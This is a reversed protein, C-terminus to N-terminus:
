GDLTWEEINWTFSETTANDEINGINDAWALFAPLQYLPVNPLTQWMQQDAQNLFDSQADIDLETNARAILDDVVEDSYAGPNSASGTEFIQKTGSAPFPTGVWAFIALDFDGPPGPPDKDEGFLVPFIEGGPLNDIRVEIGVEALQQQILEQLRERRTNGGTTRIRYSLPTGDQEYVGADNLVYGAAELEAKAADVDRTSFEEPTNDLYPNQNQVFVRNGLPDVPDDGLFPQILAEVILERDIGLTIARRVELPVTTVNFDLHEWTPGFSISSQVGDFGEVQEVLDVQPQPSIVDVEANQLAAPLSAVDTIFRFTVEAINPGDGFWSDNPVLTLDSGPNYEELMYPGAAVMPDDRFGESWDLDLHAPPMPDGFLALYEVYPEGAPWTLQVAKEDIVELTATDYGGTAACNDEEPDNCNEYYYEFDASSVPVGDSWEADDSWRYEVVLPDEQIIEPESECFYPELSFDPQARMCYPWVSRMIQRAALLNDQGTNNNFNTIEQELGITVTGEAPGGDAGTDEDVDVDVDEADEVDLDDAEDDVDGAVDDVADDVDEAADDILDDDDDGCAAAVLTFAFLLALVRMLKKPM